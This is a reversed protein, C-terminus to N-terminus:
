VEVNEFTYVTYWLIQFKLTSKFHCFRVQSQIEDWKNDLYRFIVLFLYLEYINVFLANYNQVQTNLFANGIQEFYAMCSM